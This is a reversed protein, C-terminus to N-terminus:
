KEYRETLRNKNDRKWFEIGRQGMLVKEYTKELGAKGAYDGILYGEDKHYKLFNSDVESLYGLINGGADYPYDRVPREQLYYGPVFRFMNENLKAMKEESLLAEFVSPRYSKNKIIATIIRKRFEATDIQLINCLTTTDTGRIKGPIVMLDYIITNQLVSRNKRDFVIGRDPYIVKRFIGQDDALIKYKSTVVQLTFLRIIIILFTGIFILRIVNKRSQNFVSM